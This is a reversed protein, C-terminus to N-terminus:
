AGSHTSNLITTLRDALARKKDVNETETIAQALANIYNQEAEALTSPAKITPHTPEQILEGKMYYGNVRIEKLINKVVKKFEKAIPKRSQFLVEYLGQETLFWTKQIGGPTPINKREKEDEDVSQLFKNMSAVSYDIMGAVDKARFWPTQTDGYIDLLQGHFNTTAVVQMIQGTTEDFISVQTTMGQKVERYLDNIKKRSDKNPQHKGQAWKGVTRPDTGIRQGIAVLNLGHTTRMEEIVKSYNRRM